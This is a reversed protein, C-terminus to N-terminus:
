RTVAPLERAARGSFVVDTLTVTSTFTVVKTTGVVSESANSFTVDVRGKQGAVSELWASVDGRSLATGSITLTAVGPTSFPTTSTASAPSPASESFSFQTLWVHAPVAAGLDDLLTAASIDRGVLSKYTTTASNLQAYTTAVDHLAAIRRSVSQTSAQASALADQQKHLSRSALLQMGGGAALCVVVALAVGKQVVRVRREVLIEPPLLNVFPRVAREPDVLPPLDAADVPGAPEAATGRSLLIPRTLTLNM